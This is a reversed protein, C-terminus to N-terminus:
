FAEGIGISVAVPAGFITGPNGEVASDPKGLIQMWPVRYGLDLRIPGVPTAYRIGSGCSLHLFSPRVDLRKPSVDSSDCFLASTLPGSVPFRFEASLEWLSM